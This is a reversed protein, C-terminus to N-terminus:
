RFTGTSSNYTYTTAGTPGTYTTAATKSWSGDSIGGQDLVNDFCPTVTSNCLAVSATDLTPYSCSGAVCANAHFTAIGARVGGLVGQEASAQAQVQLNYYRPIAVAALI